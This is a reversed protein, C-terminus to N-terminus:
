AQDNDKLKKEAKGLVAYVLSQAAYGTFVFFLGLWERVQELQKVEHKAILVVAVVCLSLSISPWELRIFPAFKFDGNNKRNIENVKVLNHILIGFLGLAFLILNTYDM